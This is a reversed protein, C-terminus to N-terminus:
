FEYQSAKVKVKWQMICSTMIFHNIEYQSPKVKVKWKLTIFCNTKQIPWYSNRHVKSILIWRLGFAETFITKLTWLFEYQGWCFVIITYLIIHSHKLKSYLDHHTATGNYLVDRTICWRELVSNKEAGEKNLAINTIVHKDVQFINYWIFHDIRL